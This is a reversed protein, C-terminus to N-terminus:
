VIPSRVKSISLLPITETEAFPVLRTYTTGEFSFSDKDIIEAKDGLKEAVNAMIDPDSGFLQLAIPKEIESKKLLECTNKSDYMLGKASVMETYTLAVGFEKCITRFTVDSVGALPALLLDNDLVIDRVKLM